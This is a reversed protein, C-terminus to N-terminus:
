KCLILYKSYVNKSGQVIRMFYPGPPLSVPIQIFSVGPDLRKELCVKGNLDFIKIMRKEDSSSKMLININDKAPIPYVSVGVETDFSKTFNEAPHGFLKLESITNWDNVFNGHGDLRIYSYDNEAFAPPFDFVQFNGSFNCSAENILVPDWTINDGSAYVDFYAEYKQGTNFAVMMHSIRSPGELMLLLSQSKGKASWKTLLNGDFVNKPYDDAYYNGASANIIKLPELDPKYPRIIVPLDASSKIMGDDVTLQFDLFRDEAVVPSLFRIRAEKTSSVSINDPVSWYFSTKNNDFGFIRSADIEYVFGSYASEDYNITAMMSSGTSKTLNIINNTVSQPGMTVALGGSTSQLPNSAPRTYSVTVVTSGYIIPSPLYLLVRKGSVAISKISKAVSNYWIGFASIDPVINALDTDYYMEIIDPTSNEIVSSLYVPVTIVPASIVNNTVNRANLSEALGGSTSQLPNTAPRTYAITVITSAYQVPAPLNLFVRNGSVSVSKISKPVSNYWLSFASVDPVVNALDTDYRIEIVDPASSEIVSSVYVPVIVVPPPATSSIRNTVVQASLTEALGGSTSQLPNVSPRNYAITVITSAYQIAAPLTLLVKNGSVAVSKITKPVSNYWISFASIDPVINALDINYSIEILDPTSSEIVSGVYVPITGGSSEPNIKNTVPKSSISAALGGTTGQLPNVAPQTYSVTVNEGYKINSTLILRVRTGSVSVSYVDKKVGNAMVIFSTNSPTINALNESYTMDLIAPAANEVVSSVYVPVSIAAPNPDVMLVVSTFPALTVSGAYKTGKVDVMPEPLTIVKDSKTANYYFDIDSTDTLAVPSIRSNLDQGSLTRWEELTKPTYSWNISPVIPKANDLPRAYYNNNFIGIQNFDDRQSVIQMVFQSATKAFYINGSINFERLPNPIDVFEAIRSVYRANYFTNNTITFKQSGSTFYGCWAMNAVSNNSITMPGVSYYDFFIGAVMDYHGAPKGGSRGIGNMVINNLIQINNYTNGASYQIGGCDEKNFGFTNVFNYRIIQNNGGCQIGTYGSSFIKNYEIIVDNSQSPMVAKGSQWKGQGMGPILGTNTITNYGFYLNNCYSYTFLANDNCRDITCNNINLYLSRGASIGYWGCFQIDCNQVSVYDNYSCVLASNNAGKFSINDLTIYHKYSTFTVLNNITTVQVSYNVPNATGFYMYFTSTSKNYFWEGFSDLTRLDNQIFYGWGVGPHYTSTGGTYSITNGTQDAIPHRPINNFTTARIVVEAGQWNYSSNSLEADTLSTYGSYSDVTAWTTTEPWFKSNPWRGRAYQAGNITVMEPASECAIVKSYIGNGANNWSSVTSFGTIVPKEGTGYAGIVIPNGSIGGASIRLSGYFTEGRRFLIRDGPEMSSFASNVKTISKWPTSESTGSASDNGTNSVYYNTAYSWTSLALFSMILIHKM